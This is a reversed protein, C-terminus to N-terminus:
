QGNNGLCTCAGAPHEAPVAATGLKQQLKQREPAKKKGPLTLGATWDSLHLGNQRMVGLPLRPM